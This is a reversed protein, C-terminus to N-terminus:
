SQRQKSTWKRKRGGKASAPSPQYSAACPSSSPSAPCPWTGDPAVKGLASTSSFAKRRPPKFFIPLFLSHSSKSCKKPHHKLCIFSVNNLSQSTFKQGPYYPIISGM